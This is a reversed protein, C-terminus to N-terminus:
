AAPANLLTRAEKLDRTDFGETFWGYVPALLDRAEDQKGQDRWLRAMSIAARLEWSKAQQKRAVMLAREFYAEAKAADPDPSLLAIEGGTRHVEVEGWRENTTEVSAIAEDICRRADDFQGGEGYARALYPLHLPLWLRAGTSRLATISSTIMQIADVPRGGPVLLCGRVSLGLAKWFQAGKEEALSILEIVQENAASYNGCEIQIVCAHVLAYMLTAAQGIERAEKIACSADGLAADPYGLMWLAWSRYSLAAVRVDQGFRAALARHESPDYLAIVRDLHARGEVFDGRHLVSGMMRHGIMLPATARRKEALTLFQNALERVDDGNFAVFSATWFSFLVSFLLLPDEPPEGLAEAKEILLRAREAAAKTEPAGYGKVHM